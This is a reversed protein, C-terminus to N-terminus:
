ATTLVPSGVHPARGASDSLVPVTASGVQERIPLIGECVPGFQFDALLQQLRGATKDLNLYHRFESLLTGQMRPQGADLEWSRMYIVIPQNLAEIRSLLSKTLPYSFARICGGGGIAIRFGGVNITSPPIEWLRHGNWEQSHIWESAGSVGALDHVIPLVSSDYLFGEEAVIPLAWPTHTTISLSPARFGVVPRGTVDELIRKAQRVDQRFSDPTQAAVLQHGYGLCAIEHGAESVRHILSPHQEALWGLAFFTARTSRLALIDLLREVSARIRSRYSSWGRRRMPSDFRSAHFHEELDFTLIHRPQHNTGPM